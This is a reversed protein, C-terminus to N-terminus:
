PAYVAFRLPVVRLIARTIRRQEPSLLTVIQNYVSNKLVHRAENPVAQACRGTARWRIGGGCIRACRPWPQSAARLATCETEGLLTTFQFAFLRM